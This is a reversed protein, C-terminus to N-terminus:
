PTSLAWRSTNGSEFGDVFLPLIACNAQADAVQLDVDTLIVRDFAFGREVAAGDTSYTVELRTQQGNLTTSDLAGATWTSPSWSQGNTTGAWGPEGANCGSYQLADPTADYARGGDPEIVSRSGTGDLTAVNARDWWQGSFDEIDYNNWVVLTTTASPIFVPSRIRDCQNDLLTSSNMAWASGSAGGVAMSRDFTGSELVWGETDTEFDFTKTAFTQFDSELDGITLTVTKTLPAIEDATFEVVLEVIDGFSVDVATMTFSGVATSCQSLSAAVVGLGGITFDIGPHTPSTVGVVRVNTLTANGINEIDFTVTADECSDLFQDADGTDITFSGTGSDSSLNPGPAATVTTCSSSPGLCISGDAGVPTVVYYYEMGNKLGSDVWELGTTEGLYEKGFDCAFVGEGRYVRYAVADTVSTWTLRAGRDLPTAVVTPAMTPRNACGSTQVAPTPCDIDRVGFASNIAVMHPTGNSLNGDDDDAALYNLYGGAANCGDGTGTGNVCTYWNGVAGAGEFTLRHTLRYATEPQMNTPAAPLERKWLDWVSEAYVAGECHVSGGCPGNSPGPGCGDIFPIGHPNGSARIAWDIDRVGTCTTCPDGYGGCPTARFNRGICSTNLRLAAYIDAIGEGPSSIGPTADAGDMGHGWEHVFVGAIEGTNSCPGGSQYFRLGGPGGTANCTQAINMEVPLSRTLWTNEPLYSRGIEMSRNIEYFGSRSSHTNGASAGGPVTCDIGGSTGLDFVSASSAETLQGCNDTLTVYPGDLTTTLSSGGDICVPVNGGSDTVWTDVGDTVEAFPMPYTQNIGDPDVGDNSVPYVGGQLVRTGAGGLPATPDATYHSRDAFELLDGTAADVLAEWDGVENPSEARWSWALRYGYGEGLAVARPNEGRAFPVYLLEPKRWSLDPDVGGLHERAVQLAAASTVAPAGPAAIDGWKVAGWLILNGHNVVAHLFSGRVRHGNKVRPVHIQVLEGGRHVTVKQQGLEASDIGLATANARLWGRYATWAAGEFDKM